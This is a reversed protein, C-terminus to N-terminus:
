RRGRRTRSPEPEIAFMPPADAGAQELIATFDPEAYCRCLIPQGPHGDSPPESWLFREGERASHHHRVREDRATRWIYADVGLERQRAGNVAGYFKGVQDRAILAARREGVAFREDLEKALTRHLVGGTVARTVSREIEGLIKVPIDKILAVNEAVFGDTLAALRPDGQFVDAGLAARTQRELQVRQYTETRAAFKRALTKVATPDLADSMRREADAILRDVEDSDADARERAARELLRPLAAFLPELERRLRNVIARLAAAYEREIPRPPVQQPLRARRRATIGIARRARLLAAM